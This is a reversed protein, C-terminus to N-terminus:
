PKNLAEESNRSISSKPFQAPILLNPLFSWPTRAHIPRTWIESVWVRFGKSNLPFCIRGCWEAHLELNGHSLNSENLTKVTMVRKQM